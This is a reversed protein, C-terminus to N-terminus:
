CTLATPLSVDATVTQKLPNQTAGDGDAFSFKHRLDEGTSAMPPTYTLVPSDGTDDPMVTAGSTVELLISDASRSVM